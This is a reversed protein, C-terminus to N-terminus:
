RGCTSSSGGVSTFTMGGSTTVREPSATMPCQSRQCSPAVLEAPESRPASHRKWVFPYASLGAAPPVPQAHDLGPWSPDGRGAEKSSNTQFRQWCGGITAHRLVMAVAAVLLATVVIWEVAGSHNDPDWGTLIEIWDHWFITLIGFIGACLAGAMELRARGKSLKV